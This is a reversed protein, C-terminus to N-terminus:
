QDIQEILQKYTSEYGMFDYAISNPYKESTKFVANYLSTRPYDIHEPVHEDYFKLWPKKEYM